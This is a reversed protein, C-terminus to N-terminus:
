LYERARCRSELQEVHPAKGIGVVVVADAGISGGYRIAPLLFHVPVFVIACGSQQVVARVLPVAANALAKQHVHAVHVM